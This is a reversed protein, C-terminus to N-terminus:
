AVVVQSGNLVRKIESVLAEKRVPKTIFGNMGADLCEQREDGTSNATIAIVPVSVGNPGGGEIERIKRCAELGDMEPMRMDMLVLGYSGKRVAEVAERGNSVVTIDSFEPKLLRAAVKQNILNDEALLVRISDFRDTPKKEESAKPAQEQATQGQRLPLFFSFTSGKGYVSEVEMRGGLYDVIKKCITLGLGTGGFQRSIESAGQEYEQFLTELVEPRIGIGTDIIEFCLEEPGTVSVKVEVRGRETFKLANGILNLLIHRILGADGIYQEVVDEGFSTHLSVEKGGTGHSLINVVSSVVPRLLFPKNEIVLKGAELKSFDLVNNVLNLLLDGSQQIIQVYELQTEDLNTEKLAQALGAVGNLPTRIEHSMVALFRAKAEARIEAAAREGMLRDQLRVQPSVNRVLVSMTGEGFPLARAEFYEMNGSPGQLSYGFYLAKGKRLAERSARMISNVADVPKLDRLKKGVFLGEIFFNDREPIRYDLIVGDENLKLYLDPLSELLLNLESRLSEERRKHSASATQLSLSALVIGEHCCPSFLVRYERMGDVLPIAIEVSVKIGEDLSRLAGEKLSEVVDGPFCHRVNKGIYFAPDGGLDSEEPFHCWLITGERDFVLIPDPLKKYLQDLERANM